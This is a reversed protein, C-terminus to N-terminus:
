KKQETVTFTSGAITLTGTRAGGDNATVTFSVSGSGTGSAGSTITIWSANSTATWACGSQTTVTVPGGTGGQNAFAQSTPSIIFTCGSSQSVTVSQGAVTLTGNRAAGTNALVTYTVTGSGTGTQGAVLTIWNVNSAATWACGSSATVGIPTGTGGVAGITVSTPSVSYSCSAGAETVTVQHGAITLTGTRVSTTTNAAVSIDVTGNGSGSAGSTITIWSVNTTTTWSCGSTTTVTFSSRTSGSSPLSLTTPNVTYSCSPAPPGSAAAQTVTVVQGAISLTGTRAAGTNAAAVFTVPAPGFSHTDSTITLWAANSAATWECGSATDLSLTAGGGNAAISAAAPTVAYVCAPTPPPLVNKAGQTIRITRDAVTLSASRANGPNAGVVITVTGPGTGTSGSTVSIWPADVRASWACGAATTVGIRATGGLADFDQAGASLEFQCSAGEQRIQARIGNVVVDGQRSSAAPNPAVTAKIEGTGQGSAPTLGTIWNAESSASWTCEAQTSVAVTATAGAPDISAAPASVTVGCKAPSPATSSAVTSGCGASVCAVCLTILAVFFEHCHLRRSMPGRFLLL